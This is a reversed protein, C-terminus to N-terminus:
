ELLSMVVAAEQMKQLQQQYTAIAEPGAQMRTALDLCQRMARMARDFNGNLYHAEALTSWVHYSGPAILVADQALALARRADRREPETATALYWAFNNLVQFNEPHDALQQEFLMTLEDYRRQKILVSSLIQQIPLVEPHEAMLGRLMKEATDFDERQLLENVQHLRGRSAVPLVPTATEDVQDPPLASEAEPPPSPVEAEAWGSPCSWWAIALLMLCRIASRM